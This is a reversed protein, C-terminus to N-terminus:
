TLTQIKPELVFKVHHTVLHPSVAKAVDAASM